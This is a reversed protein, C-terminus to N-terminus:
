EDFNVEDDKGMKGVLLLQQQLWQRYEAVTVKGHPMKSRMKYVKPQPAPQPVPKPQPTSSMPNSQSNPKPVPTPDTTNIEMEWLDIDQMESKVQQLQYEMDRLQMNTKRCRVNWGSGLDVRIATFKKYSHQLSEIKNYISVNWEKPYTALKQGLTDAKELLDLCTDSLQEAAHQMLLYYFDKIDQTTQRMMPANHVLDSECAQNWLDRKQNFNAMDAHTKELEDKVDAIFDKEKEIEEFQTDIFRLDKLVHEVASIYDDAMDLFDHAMNLYNADTVAKGFQNFITRAKVSRPFLATLDEDSEIKVYIRHSMEKSLSRICDVVEFDNDNYNPNDEGTIKKYHCDEKLIDVIDQRDKYSLSQMVAKFSAKEFARTSDFVKGVGDDTASHFDEGGYKVIVKNGRLLAALTTVIIGYSYGTPPALLERELDAGTKYSKCRALIETVVALNDGIFKGSTDFFKFEESPGFHKALKSAPITLAPKALSDELTASLRRTYVNGAMRRQVSELEKICNEETLQYTNYQYVIAGEQYARRVLDELMNQKDGRTDVITRQVKKEEDTSYTKTDIYDIRLLDVALDLMQKAYTNAPIVSLIGKEDQTDQKVQSITQERNEYFIDYLVVKMYREGQNAFNEGKSTEVCYSLKAGDLMLSQAEKVLRLQKLRKTIEAEQRFLPIEYKVMDDIIQQEIQSTIRYQDATQLLVNNEVLLAVARKVEELIDYYQEPHRAYSSAINDVTTRADSKALFYIVQLLKKGSVLKFSGDAALHEEAQQYRMRLSEPINEMAQNCLEVSSVHTHVEEETMAEKKLVDFVSMLMGRTGIQTTVTDRSGFLFYQLMKFQHVFFPYYDSYVEGDKTASLALGSINTVAQIMGSNKVYYAKLEQKGADTKDLLRKRIIKDIEEAAIPIRTKFRAEVKELKSKNLGSANLVDNFAQQAIGITWVRNGLGSLSESLGELELIDIKKQTIAESVEDIFFIVKDQPHQELYLSLDEKLKCSDYTDIREQAIKETDKFDEEGMIAIMAKRFVSMTNMMNRRLDTWKKGGNQEEVKQLFEEYQDNLLLHYEMLGIWNNMLGLSLLFQSMAMYAIGHKNDVKASDFLVVQYKSKDLSSIQNKIFAENNLGVLKHLFRERFPTGQIVPNEILFGLMKAFYSKGSGYFGSLWVGSEKMDSCFKDLFDSLHGALSETLIFGDLEEKIEDESQSNLDIVNKIDNDLQISLIDKIKMM